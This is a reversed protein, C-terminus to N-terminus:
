GAKKQAIVSAEEKIIQQLRNPSMGRIMMLRIQCRIIEEFRSCIEKYKSKSQKGLFDIVNNDM